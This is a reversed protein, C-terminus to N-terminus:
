LALSLALPIGPYGVSGGRSSVVGQQVQFLELLTFEVLDEGAITAQSLTGPSSKRRPASSVPTGSTAQDAAM